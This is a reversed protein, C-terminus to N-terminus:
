PERYILEALATGVDHLRWRSLISPLDHVTTAFRPFGDEGRGAVVVAPIGAEALLPAPSPAPPATEAVFITDMGLAAARDWLRRVQPEAVALSGEDMPIRDERAGVGQVIVAYRPRPGEGLSALYHRTGPYEGEADRGDGDAFLLDVGVAPRQQRFLEALELLVAVGSANVNAGPSPRDRDFRDPSRVAMRPVDRHAVVLVRDAADPNFRAVVSAYRLATDAGAPLHRFAQVLVTDARLSLQEVLWREQRVHASHGAYRPGQTVQTRVHSLAREGSFEPVQVSDSGCAPLSLVAALAASRHFGRFPIL